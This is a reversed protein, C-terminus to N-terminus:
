SRLALADRRARTVDMNLNGKTHITTYHKATEYFYFDFTLLVCSVMEFQTAERQIGHYSVAALALFSLSVDSWTFAVIWGSWYSCHGTM